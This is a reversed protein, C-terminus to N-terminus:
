KKQCQLLTYNIGMRDNTSVVKLGADDICQLFDESHYMQSNGNAMATFYLSTQQLCFAASKFQQRDWFPELIYITGGDNLAERCRKLISVIESESFCDLFQSMWIADFGEPFPVEEHLINAIHFNVRHDVGAEKLKQQAIGAQGPLDFITIEVDPDKATCALAWKGTNGGIDLLKKPKHEFVINLAAPTALDSYYHDFDFWSKGIEPPLLSLGPYITDWPGLERLGAPKGDRLSEQLHNMGKYCIDQSFDMNIRTLRDHLIFYGTKTLTYRKNNVIILEMGLGAELLVRVAYRNLNTKEMIDEITTGASRSNSIATLIGMDRLARTAQFAVPAFALRLAAEQAELATKTEKNFM